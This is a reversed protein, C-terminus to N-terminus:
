GPMADPHLGPDEYKRLIDEATLLDTVSYLDLIQSRKQDDEGVMFGDDDFYESMDDRSGSIREETLHDAIQPSHQYLYKLYLREVQLAADHNLSTSQLDSIDNFNNVKDRNEDRADLATRVSIENIATLIALHTHFPKEESQEIYQFLQQIGNIGRPDIHYYFYTDEDLPNPHQETTAYEAILPVIVAPTNIVASLTSEDGQDFDDITIHKAM